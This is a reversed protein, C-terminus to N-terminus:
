PATARHVADGSGPVKDHHGNGIRVPTCLTRIMSSNRKAATPSSAGNAPNWYCALSELLRTLLTPETPKLVYADVGLAMADRIDEGRDIGTLIAVHRPRHQPNQSLWRLVSFGDLRPMKLDLLLLSATDEAKSEGNNTQDSMFSVLEEGDNFTRLRVDPAAKSFALRLLLEDNPDDEALLVM